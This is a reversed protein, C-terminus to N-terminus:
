LALLHPGVPSGVLRFKVTYYLLYKINFLMISWLSHMSETNKMYLEAKWVKSPPIIVIIMQSGTFSSMPKLGLLWKKVFPMPM